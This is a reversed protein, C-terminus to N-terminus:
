VECLVDNGEVRVPYVTTGGQPNTLEAGTKPDFSWGHWPCVVRNDEVAGESLPAWRHPCEDGSLSCDRAARM